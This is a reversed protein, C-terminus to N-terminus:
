SQPNRRTVRLDCWVVHAMGELNQGSISTELQVEMQADHCVTHHIINNGNNNSSFHIRTKWISQTADPTNLNSHQYTPSSEWQLCLFCFSIISSHCVILMKVTFLVVCCCCM